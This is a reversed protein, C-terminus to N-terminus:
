RKLSSRVDAVLDPVIVRAVAEEVLHDVPSHANGDGQREEVHLDRPPGAQLHFADVEGTVKQQPAPRSAPRRVRLIEDDVCKVAAGQQRFVGAAVQEAAVLAVFRHEFRM